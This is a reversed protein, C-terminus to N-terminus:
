LLIDRENASSLSWWKCQIVYLQYDSASAAHLVRPRRWQQAEKETAAVRTLVRCELDAHVHREKLSVRSDHVFDDEPLLSSAEQGHIDGM